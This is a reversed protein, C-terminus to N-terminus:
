PLCRTQGVAAEGRRAGADAQDTPRWGDQGRELTWRLLGLQELGRFTRRRLGTDLLFAPVTFIGAAFADEANRRLQATIAAPDAPTAWTEPLGAQHCVEEVWDSRDPQVTGRWLAGFIAVTLVVRDGEEVGQVARLATRPDFAAPYAMKFPVGFLEAWRKAHYRFGRCRRGPTGAPGEPTPKM